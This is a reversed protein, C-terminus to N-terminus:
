SQIKAPLLSAVAALIGMKEQFPGCPLSWIAPGFYRGGTECEVNRLKTDHRLAVM